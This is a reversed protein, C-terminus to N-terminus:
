LAAEPGSHEQLARDYDARNELLMNTLRLHKKVLVNNLRSMEAAVDARAFGQEVALTRLVKVVDRFKVNQPCKVSCAYCQICLWIQSSALLEQKMGLLIMRIMQRPNFSEAVAAVPCAATCTGCAFCLKINEGGPRAAVEDKFDHDLTSTELTSM